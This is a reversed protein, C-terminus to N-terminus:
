GNKKINYKMLAAEVAPSLSDTQPTSVETVASVHPDSKNDRQKGHAEKNRRRNAYRCFRAIHGMQGCEHREVDKYPNNRASITAAPQKEGEKKKTKDIM